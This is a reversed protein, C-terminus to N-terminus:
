RIVIKKGNVIYVGKKLDKLTTVGQKVLVGATSYVDVPKNSDMVISIAEPVIAKIIKFDIWPVTREYDKVAEEPVHLTIQKVDTDKFAESSTVPLEKAYVFVDTLKVCDSFAASQIEKIGEGIKLTIMETCKGFAGEEIQTVSKPLEIAKIGTCGNFASEGIREVSEPIDIAALNKCELFAEKDIATVSKEIKVREVKTRRLIPMIKPCDFVAEELKECKDFIGTGINTPSCEIRVSSMETCGTFAGNGISNVNKPLGIQKVESCGNFASEGIREVSEPMDIDTLNKCERFAEKDIATVTEEMKVREVKTKQLVSTVTACNFEAEKLNDCGAFVDVGVNEPSSLIKVSSMSSCDKFAGDGISNVSKPLEITKISSCGSFANEDIATVSKPLTVASLSSCGSFANVGIKEVTEPITVSQLNANDKFADAAIITVIYERGDIVIKAPIEITTEQGDVTGTVTLNGEEGFNYTLNDEVVDMEVINKFEKWGETAEYKAKTGAPVYLTAYTYSDYDNQGFTNYSIPVPNTMYSTVKTLHSYGRSFAVEGISTVSSPIIINEAKWCDSFAARGITTVGEPIIISKLGCINFAAEGISTVTSPIDISTLSECSQFTALAINTVGVPINVSNLAKCGDFAGYGIEKVSEPIHIKELSSCGKFTLLSINELSKPINVSELSSCDKFVGEGIQTISEPLIFGTLMNCGEFAYDQIGTVSYSKGDSGEVSSPIEIIGTADKSVAIYSEPEKYGVIVEGKEADKVRYTIGNATFIDNVKLEKDEMEVINKFEKWGETAEYKAKTGAPVYFTANNKVRDEFTNSYIVFPEPLLSYVTHIFYTGKFANEGIEKVSKGISVETLACNEFAYNGISIVSNPIVISGLTYSNWFAFEGISVVSNPISFSGFGCQTFAYDGITTVTNPVVTNKCGGILENTNTKIIANCNNRSDYVPNNSEVVISTLGKCAFFSGNEILTVSKPIFLSTLKLCYQFAGGEITKVGDPIIISALEECSAFARDKIITVTNPITTFSLNVCGEFASSGVSTVGSEIVVKKIEKRYDYWPASKDTMPGTGFITM